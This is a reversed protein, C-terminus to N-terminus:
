RLPSPERPNSGDTRRWCVGSVRQKATTNVDFRKHGKECFPPLMQEGMRFTLLVTDDCADNLAVLKQKTRADHPQACVEALSMVSISGDMLAAVAWVRAGDNGCLLPPHFKIFWSGSHVTESM